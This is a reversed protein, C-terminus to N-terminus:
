KLTVKKSQKKSRSEVNAYLFLVQLKKYLSLTSTVQSQTSFITTIAEAVQVNHNHLEINYHIM